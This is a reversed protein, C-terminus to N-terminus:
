PVSRAGKGGTQRESTDAPQAVEARDDGVTPHGDRGGGQSADASRERIESATAREALMDDSGTAREAPEAVRDRDNRQPRDDADAIEDHKGPDRDGDGGPHVRLDPHDLDRALARRARTWATAGRVAADVVYAGRAGASKASGAVLDSWYIGWAPSLRDGLPPWTLARFARSLLRPRGALASQVIAASGQFGSEHRRLWACYAVAPTAAGGHQIVARAAAQGSAMAQSIGEGQLPNVLGAADGALLVQGGAPRTGVMGMKLWGGLRSGPVVYKTADRDVLELRALLGLFHDLERTAAAGARRDAGTAIGVGANARGDPGPFLWGYGPFGRGEVEFLIIAPLAVDINLYVRLAFGWRVHPARLMGAAAAVASTAGDAGIVTGARLRRGSDLRLEVAAGERGPELGAVRAIVAEASADLAAARLHEDFSVRPVAWGLGPYAVGPAAVLRIRHGAPGVVDMDGVIRVGAPAIGYGSLLAVGRPGVVDGCAKDRPFRAKDVLAVSAGSRALELAAISGAPGSGVVVADYSQRAPVAGNYGNGGSATALHHAAALQGATV